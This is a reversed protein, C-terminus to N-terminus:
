PKTMAMLDSVRSAKVKGLGSTVARELIILPSPTM